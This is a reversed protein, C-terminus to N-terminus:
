SLKVVATATALCNYFVANCHKFEIIRTMLSYNLLMPADHSKRRM